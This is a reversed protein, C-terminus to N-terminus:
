LRVVLKSKFKLIKKTLDLVTTTHKNKVKFGKPLAKYFFFFFNIM